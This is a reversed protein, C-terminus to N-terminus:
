VLLGIQFKDTTKRDQAGYTGVSGGFGLGLAVPLPSRLLHM